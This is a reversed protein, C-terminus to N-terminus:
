FSEILEIDVSSLERGGVGASSGSERGTDSAGISEFFSVVVNGEKAGGGRPVIGPRLAM